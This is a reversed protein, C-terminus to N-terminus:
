RESEWTKIDLLANWTIQYRAYNTYEHLRYNGDGTLQLAVLELSIDPAYARAYAWLQLATTPQVERSTKIDLVAEIRVGAMRLVGARDLTGAYRALADVVVQETSEWTPRCDTLFRKYGELYPVIRSDIAEEDLLGADFLECAKHVAIGLDRKWNLVGEPISALYKGTLPQLIESVSPIRELGYWYQHHEADFAILAPDVPRPHSPVALATTM